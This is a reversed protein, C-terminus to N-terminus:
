FIASPTFFRRTNLRRTAPYQEAELEPISDSEGSLYEGLSKKIDKLRNISGGYRFSIVEYGFPKYTANWQERHIESLEKFLKILEPIVKEAAYTMYEKDKKLYADRLRLLLETKLISIKFIHKAYKKMHLSDKPMKAANVTTLAEKYRDLMKESVETKYPVLNYFPDNYFYAKGHAATGDIYAHYSGIAEWTKFKTKTLFESVSIIDRDRTKSGRYCYESFLPLYPVSFFINTECGDDGWITAFVSRVGNRACSRLAAKSNNWTEEHWPLQGYWNSIGGAFLLPRLLKKHCKIQLDYIKGDSHYYDWYVMDVDAINDTIEKSFDIESDVYYSGNPSALRFYMDSWMMPKYGYKNCIEVVRGLHRNLTEFRNQYGHKKLFKGLGVDHAEDMGIHIRNTRFCERMSRIAAEIFKYTADEDVILVSSTDVIPESESWQLYQALHGLTQICPIVEVGLSYAYDDIERLEEKSYKGRLYGFFKYEEITYTDETYLMLFNLGLAAMCNIYKKVADVKMVGNRSCDIMVGCDDFVPTERIEFSKKGESINKALLFLARCLMATTKGGVVAKEGKFSVYVGDSDSVELSINDADFGITDFVTKKIFEFNQMVITREKVM